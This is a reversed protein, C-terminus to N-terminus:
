VVSESRCGYLASLVHEVTSIKAHGSQITTARVLDVIQDVRPKM